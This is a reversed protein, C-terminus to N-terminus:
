KIVLYKKYKRDYEIITVLPKDMGFDCGMGYIYRKKIVWKIHFWIKKLNIKM